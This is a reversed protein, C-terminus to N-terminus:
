ALDRDQTKAEYLTIDRDQTKAEYLTIHIDGRGGGGGM